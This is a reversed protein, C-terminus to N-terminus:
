FECFIEKIEKITNSRLQGNYYQIGCEILIDDFWKSFDAITIYEIKKDWEDRRIHGNAIKKMLGKKRDSDYVRPIRMIVHNDVLAHIYQEMARKYIGYEDELYVAAMSSAFIMKCNNRQAQKAMGITTDIMSVAMISKFQFDFSDSPSGFHLVLDINDYEHDPEYKILEWNYNHLVNRLLFGTSGTVLVKIAM